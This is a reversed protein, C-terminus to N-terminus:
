RAGAPARAALARDIQEPALVHDIALRGAGVAGGQEGAASPLVALRHTALPLSRQYVAERVGALLPEHATALVGGVVIAEPNFFNVLGALVDGIDRGAGRVLRVAAPDGDAVRAVVARGDAAPTGAATLRAAVVAGAFHDVVRPWRQM